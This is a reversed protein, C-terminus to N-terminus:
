NILIIFITIILIIASICILLIPNFSTSILASKEQIDSLDEESMDQYLSSAATRLVKKYSNVNERGSLEERRKKENLYDCYYIDKGEFYLSYFYDKDFNEVNIVSFISDFNQIFWDTDVFSFDRFTTGSSLVMGIMLKSLSIINDRKEQEFNSSREINKFTANDDVEIAYSNLNNVVLGNNHLQKLQNSLNDYFSSMDVNEYTIYDKLNM